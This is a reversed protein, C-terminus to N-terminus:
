SDDRRALEAQATLYEIQARILEIQADQLPNASPPAPNLLANLEKEKTLLTIEQQLQAVEEARAAALEERADKRATKYQEAADATMDAVMQLPAAKSAYQFKEVTGDAALEVVLQNNEFMRNQFPLFRLQGLQPVTVWEGAVVM